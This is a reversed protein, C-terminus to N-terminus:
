GRHHLALLGVPQSRVHNREPGLRRAGGGANAALVVFVDPDTRGRQSQIKRPTTMTVYRPVCLNLTDTGQSHPLRFHFKQVNCPVVLAGLGRGKGPVEWPMKPM